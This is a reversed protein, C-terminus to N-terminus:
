CCAPRRRAGTGTGASSATPCRRLCCQVKFVTMCLMFALLLGVGLLPLAMSYTVVGWLVDTFRARTWGLQARLDRWPLGRRTGWWLAGVFAAASTALAVLLSGAVPFDAGEPVARRIVLRAGRAELDGAAVM